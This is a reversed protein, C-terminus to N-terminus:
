IADIIEQRARLAAVQTAIEARVIRAMELSRLTLLAGAMGAYWRPNNEIPTPTAALELMNVIQAMARDARAHLAFTELTLPIGNVAVLTM